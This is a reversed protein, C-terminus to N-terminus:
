IGAHVEQLIEQGETKSLCRLLPGSVSTKYQENRVIQYDKVRQQMRIQENKNAPEYYHCLYAMILARWDEGEIINIIIPVSLVTKVSADQLVQFFVDAPMSTNHTTAKVLDDATM